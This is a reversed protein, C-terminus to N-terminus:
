VEGVTLMSPKKASVETHAFRQVVDPQKTQIQAYSKKAPFGTKCQGQKNSLRVVNMNSNPISVGVRPLVREAKNRGGLARDGTTQQSPRSCQGVPHRCRCDYHNPTVGLGAGLMLCMFVVVDVVANGDNRLLMMIVDAIDFRGLQVTPSTGEELLLQAVMEGQVVGSSPVGEVLDHRPQSGRGQATSQAGVLPMMMILLM